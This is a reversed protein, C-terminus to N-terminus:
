QQQRFGDVAGARREAETQIAGFATELMKGLEELGESRYVKYFEQKDLGPEDVVDALLQSADEAADTIEYTGRNEREVRELREEIAGMRDILDGNQKASVPVVIEGVLNTETEIVEADSESKVAEHFKEIQEQQEEYRENTKELLEKQRDTITDAM